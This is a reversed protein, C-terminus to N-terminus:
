APDYKCIFQELTRKKRSSKQEARWLREVRGFVDQMHRDLLASRELLERTIALMNLKAEVSTYIPQPECDEVEPIPNIENVATETLSADTVEELGDDDDAPNPIDDIEIRGVPVSSQKVTQREKEVISKKLVYKRIRSVIDGVAIQQVKLSRKGIKRFGSWLLWYTLALYIASKKTLTTWLAFLWSDSTSLSSLLSSVPMFLNCEASLVVRYSTWLCM